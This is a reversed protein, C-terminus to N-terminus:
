APNKLSGQGTAYLVSRWLKGQPNIQKRRDVSLEMPVHVFQGNWHSILVGTKGAM